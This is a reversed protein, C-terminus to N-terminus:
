QATMVVDEVIRQNNHQQQRIQQGKGKDNEDENSDRMMRTRRGQIIM